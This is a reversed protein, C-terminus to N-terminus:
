GVIRKNSDLETMLRHCLSKKAENKAMNQNISTYEYRCEM